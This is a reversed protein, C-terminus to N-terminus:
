PIKKPTSCCGRPTYPAFNLCTVVWDEERLEKYGKLSMKVSMARKIELAKGNDMIEILSMEKEM